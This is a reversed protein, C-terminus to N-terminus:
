YHKMCASCLNANPTATRNRSIKGVNLRYALVTVLWKVAEWFKELQRNNWITGYGLVERGVWDFIDGGEDRSYWYYSQTQTFVVLSDHEIVHLNRASQKRLQHKEVILDEIRQRARIAELDISM